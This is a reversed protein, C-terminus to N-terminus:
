SVVVGGDGGQTRWSISACPIVLKGRLRVSERAYDRSSPRTGTSTCTPSFASAIVSASTTSFAGNWRVSRTPPSFRAIRVFFDSLRRRLSRNWQVKIHRLYRITVSVLHNFWINVARLAVAGASSGDNVLHGWGGCRGYMRLIPHLCFPLLIPIANGCPELAVNRVQYRSTSGDPNVLLANSGTGAIIVIGGRETATFLAGVTDSVAM